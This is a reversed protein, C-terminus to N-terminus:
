KRNEAPAMGWTWYKILLPRDKHVGLNLLIAPFDVDPV